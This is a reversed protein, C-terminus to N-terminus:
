YFGFNLGVTHIIHNGCDIDIPFDPGGGFTKEGIIADNVFHKRVAYRYTLPGNLSNLPTNPIDSSSIKGQVIHMKVIDATM